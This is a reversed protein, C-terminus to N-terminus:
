LRCCLYHYLCESAGLIVRADVDGSVSYDGGEGGEAKLYLVGVTAEGYLNGGPSSGLVNGDLRIDDLLDGTDVSVIVEIDEGGDAGNEGNALFRSLALLVSHLINENRAVTHVLNMGVDPGIGRLIALQSNGSGLVHLDDVGLSGIVGAQANRHDGGEKGEHLFVASVAVIETNELDTVGNLTQALVSVAVLLVLEARHELGLSARLLGYEKAGTVGYRLDALAYEVAVNLEDGCLALVIELVGYIGKVHYNCAHLDSVKGHRVGGDTLIYVPLASNGEELQAGLRERRNGGSGHLVGYGGFERGDLDVHGEGRVHSSDHEGLKLGGSAGGCSLQKRRHPELIHVLLVAARGNGKAECEAGCLARECLLLKGGSGFRDCVGESLEAHRNFHLCFYSFGTTIVPNELM